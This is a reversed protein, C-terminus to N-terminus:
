LILTKKRRKAYLGYLEEQHEDTESLFRNQM